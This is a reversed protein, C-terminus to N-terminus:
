DGSRGALALLRRVVPQLEPDAGSWLAAAAAAWRRAQEIDGRAAALEARLAMVRTLSGALVETHLFVNPMVPLGALSRDLSAIAASTDGHLVFLQAEVLATETADFGAAGAAQRGRQTAELMAVARAIGDAGPAQLARALPHSPDRLSRFGEVGLCPLALLMPREMFAGEVGRPRDGGPFMADVVAALQRPAARVDDNCLGLTSAVFFEARARYATAPVDLVRGEGLQLQRGPGGSVRELLFTAQELKGTLMALSLLLEAEADTVTPHRRLTSDAIAGARAFSEARLLLRVHARALRISLEREAPLRRAAEIEALATLGDPAADQINGASELLDVLLERARVNLSDQAIWDVLAPRLMARALTIARASAAMSEPTRRRPGPTFTEFGISDGVAIAQGLVVRGDESYGRRVRAADTFLVHPLRSYALARESGEALRGAERYAVAASYYSSRFEPAAGDRAVALSDRTLCEASGMWGAFSEGIDRARAFADCAAVYQRRGLAVIGDALSAEQETLGDRQAIAQLAAETARAQEPAAWSWASQLALDLKIGAASRVASAEEPGLRPTAVAATALLSDDAATPAADAVRPAGTTPAADRPETTADAAPDGFALLAAVAITAVAASAAVLASSTRQRRATARLLAERLEAASRVRSEPKVALARALLDALARLRRLDVRPHQRRLTTALDAASVGAKPLGGTLLEHALAATAYLDAATDTPREPALYAEPPAVSSDPLGDVAQAAAVAQAIGFDALVAHGEALLVNAPKIDRHIIGREHAFAVASLLEAVLTVSADFDPRQQADLRERLSGGAIYPVVYYRIRDNGGATVVPLIHPHQLRATTEVERQFREASKTSFLDAPLVKVVVDRKLSPEHAVFVRSMGGGGLERRLEFAAGLLSQLSDRLPATM